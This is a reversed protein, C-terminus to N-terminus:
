IYSQKLSQTGKKKAAGGGMSLGGMKGKESPRLEEELREHSWVGSHKSEVLPFHSLTAERLMHVCM